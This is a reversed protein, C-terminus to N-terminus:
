QRLINKAGCKKASCFVKKKDMGSAWMDFAQNTCHKSGPAGGPVHQGDPQCESGGSVVISNV